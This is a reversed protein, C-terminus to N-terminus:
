LDDTWAWFEAAEVVLYVSLVSLPPIGVYGHMTQVVSVPM